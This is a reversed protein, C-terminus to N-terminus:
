SGPFTGALWLAVTQHLRFRFDISSVQGTSVIPFLDLVTGNVYYIVTGVLQGAQVPAELSSPLLVGMTFSDQDSLLLEKKETKVSLFVQDSQGNTVAIPDPLFLNTGVSEPHFYTLGYNMLKQTDSWKWTRNSPWGCALVVAILRRGDRELAGAYCYGAGNTFGTKGTLAGEMMHLFANKNNVTFHRTGSLDSFSWSPERTIALFDEREMCARMIRALDEATTSHVGFEDSADLGNPTIFYTHYCGLDRAKQNMMAAFAEVSGGVHEAIAVASDNHSELMLSYCLDKLRYQEGERIHLKVEPMSSAYSSITVTNEPNANELTILLTMIKTTSAMPLQETGNKEFLIRGNNADMLVASRAYLQDPAEAALSPLACLLLLCLILFFLRRLVNM